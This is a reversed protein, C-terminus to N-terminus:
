FLTSDTVDYTLLFSMIWFQHGKGKLESKVRDLEAKNRASLILKADLSAFKKALIEGLDLWLCWSYAFVIFARSNEECIIRFFFVPTVLEM